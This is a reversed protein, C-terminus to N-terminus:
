NTFPYVSVDLGHFVPSGQLYRLNPELSHEQAWRIVKKKPKIM